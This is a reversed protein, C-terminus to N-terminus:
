LEYKHFALTAVFRALTAQGKEKLITKNDIFYQIVVLVHHSFAAIRFFNPEEIKVEMCNSFM